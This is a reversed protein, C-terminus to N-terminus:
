FTVVNGDAIKSLNQYNVLGGTGSANLFHSSGDCMVFNSGGPHGSGFSSLRSDQYTFSPNPGVGLPMKYNIPELTGALCDQPSNYSSWAWGRRNPLDAWEADFSFREGALITNSTGDKIIGLKTQSNIQFVGDFTATSIFWSKVGANGFYSNVGFYYTTGGTTYTIVSKPLYDSPCIYSPVLQAAISNPGNANAYERVDFNYNANINNQEMYPLIWALWSGFKNAFPPQKIKGNKVLSNTPFVMGSGTGIPINLGPPFFENSSEFNLCAIGIQRLNNACQTRRAAERVQQVAPLLMGILIGIIAIVVLLEVLTFGNKCARSPRSMEEELLSFPSLCLIHIKSKSPVIFSRVIQPSEARIM